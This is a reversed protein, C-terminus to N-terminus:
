WLWRRWGHTRAHAARRARNWGALNAGCGIRCPEFPTLGAVREEHDAEANLLAAAFRLANARYAADGPPCAAILTEM